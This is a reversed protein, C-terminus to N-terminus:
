CYPLFFDKERQVLHTQHQKKTDSLRHLITNAFKISSRVSDKKCPGLDGMM